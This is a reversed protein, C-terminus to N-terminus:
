WTQTFAQEVRRKWELLRMELPHLPRRLPSDYLQYAISTLNTRSRFGKWATRDLFKLFVRDWPENGRYLWPKLRGSFHVIWPDAPPRVGLAHWTRPHVQWRPDLESWRGALVANLADQDYQRLRRRERSIYELARESIRESRWLALDILLVGANFYPTEATMGANRWDSLGDIASVVPIYADRAAGIVAGKLDTKCLATIDSLILTDPCLFVIRGTQDDTYDAALLRSYTVIPIRGWVPLIKPDSYKPEVFRWTIADSPGATKWSSELRQRNEASIGGDVITIELKRGPRHHEILSRVMVALPMSYADDSITLVRIIETEM